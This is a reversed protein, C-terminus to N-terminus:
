RSFTTRLHKIVSNESNPISYRGALLLVNNNLIAPSRIPTHISVNIHRCFDGIHTSDSGTCGIRSNQRLTVVTMNLSNIIMEIHDITWRMNYYANRNLVARRLDIYPEIPPPTTLYLRNFINRCLFLNYRERLLLANTYALASMSKTRVINSLSYIPTIIALM